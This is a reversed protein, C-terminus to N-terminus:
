TIWVAILLVVICILGIWASLPFHTTSVAPTEDDLMIYDPDGPNCECRYIVGPGNAWGSECYDCGDSLMSVPVNDHINWFAKRRETAEARALYSM